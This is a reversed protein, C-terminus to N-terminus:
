VFLSDQFKGLSFIKQETLLIIADPGLCGVLNCYGLMQVESATVRNSSCSQRLTFLKYM